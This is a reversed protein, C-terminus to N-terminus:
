NKKKGQVASDVDKTHAVRMKSLLDRHIFQRESDPPMENQFFFVAGDAEDESDSDEDLSEINEQLRQRSLTPNDDSEYYDTLKTKKKPVNETSTSPFPPM